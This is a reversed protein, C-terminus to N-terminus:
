FLGEYVEQSVQKSSSFTYNNAVDVVIRTKKIFFLLLGFVEFLCFRLFM